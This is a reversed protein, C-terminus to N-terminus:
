KFFIQYFHGLKFEILVIKKILPVFFTVQANEVKGEFVIDNDSSEAGPSVLAANNKTPTSTKPSPKPSSNKKTNVEKTTESELVNVSVAETVDVKVEGNETIDDDFIFEAQDIAEEISLEHTKIEENADDKDEESATIVPHGEPLRVYLVNSEVKKNEAESNKTM